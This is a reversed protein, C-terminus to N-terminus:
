AETEATLLTLVQRFLRAPGNPGGHNEMMVPKELSQASQGFHILANQGIEARDPAQQAPAGAILVTQRALHHQVLQEARLEVRLLADRLADTEAEDGGLHPASFYRRVGRLPRVGYTTLPAASHAIDDVQDPSLAWGRVASWVSWLTLNVDLLHRDQLTLLADKVGTRGYRDLSWAWFDAAADDATM